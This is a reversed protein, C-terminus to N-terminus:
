DEEKPTLKPGLPFRKLIEEAADLCDERVLLWDAEDGDIDSINEFIIRAISEQISDPQFM